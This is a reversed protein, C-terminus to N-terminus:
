NKSKVYKRYEKMGMNFLQKIRKYLTPKSMHLQNSIFDTTKDQLILSNLLEINLKKYVPSNQGRLASKRRLQCFEEYTLKKKEEKKNLKLQKRLQTVTLGNFYKKSYKTITDETTNYKNAIAKVTLKINLINQYLQEKDIQIKKFQGANFIPSDKRIEALTKGFYKNLRNNITAPQSHYKQKLQIMTLKNIYVDQYLNEKSLEIYEEKFHTKRWKDISEDKHSNFQWTNGGDGGQTMNYGNPYITNKEKIWYRERQNLKQEPIDKELIEYYFHQIGYYRMHNHLLSNDSKKLAKQVHSSSKGNWRSAAGNKAKGIYQMQPYIDNYIIYIEGM